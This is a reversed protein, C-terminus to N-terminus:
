YYGLRITGKALLKTEGGDTPKYLAKLDAEYRNGRGGSCPGLYGRGGHMRSSNDSEVWIGEPLKKTDGPVSPLTVNGQGPAISYRLVGHGGNDMPSYIRDSFAVIIVNAEAPIGSIKLAPSYGKGGYADCIGITPVANSTWAEDAFSVELKAYDQALAGFSSLGIMVACLGALSTKDM